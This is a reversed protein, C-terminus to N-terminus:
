PSAIVEQLSIKLYDILNILKGVVGGKSKWNESLYM